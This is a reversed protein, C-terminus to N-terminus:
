VTQYQQAEAMESFSDWSTLDELEADTLAQKFTILQKTNGYFPASGTESSLNLQSLGVPTSITNSDILVEFGNLWMSVGNTSYKVAVKKSLTIDNTTYIQFSQNVSSSDIAYYIANSNTRYGVKVFDSSSGDSLTIVRFTLDDALAAIEAFLVGESDNFDASTGAGNCTEAARTVTSGSTPIYSTAYSAAKEVQCGWAYVSENTGTFSPLWSSTANQTIVLYVGNLNETNNFVVICRYWGNGYDEISSSGVASGYTGTTGNELDFNAYQQVDSASAVQIFNSDGAKAFVSVTDDVVTSTIGQAVYHNTTSTSVVIKDANQTGDPSITSNNITTVNSKAWSTSFDESRLLSNTRSPELLLSPTDQVVGDILPYDLRPTGTPAVAILGDEDVYTATSARTFDFDGNGNSPKVSFLGGSKVGSPLLMVGMKDVLGKNKMVGFNYGSPTPFYTGTNDIVRSRFNNVYSEGFSLDKMLTKSNVGLYEAASDKDIKTLTGSSSVTLIDGEGYPTGTLDLDSSPMTGGVTLDGVIHVNGATFYHDTISGNGYTATNSGNGTANQGIVIENTSTTSGGQTQYGVYINGDGSTKNYGAGYGLAVNRDGDVDSQLATNGIATNYSGSSNTGLTNYGMVSNFSGTSNNDLAQSGIATNYAGENLYLARWGVATNSDSTLNNALASEGVATNKLGTTNDRLAASGLASNSTGTTNYRLASDGIAVNNSGENEVLSYFGVATNNNGATANAMAKRGVATSNSGTTNLKLADSGVATNGGGTTNNSLAEYGVAVLYTSAINNTLANYGLATNFTGTTNTTLANAGVATNYSAANNKLALHGIATNQSQATQVQLTQYGIATNAGGTTNSNLAERGIAINVGGTTNSALASSGIAINYNASTNAYLAQYGIAVNHGGIENNYLASNGVATNYLGTTNLGLSLAGYATNNGGTTNSSLSAYGSATNYGGSTNAGLTNYGVATNSQGDINNALSIYGVAVNNSGTTNDKLATAGLATNGQGTTNNFLAQYGVAVGWAGSTNYRLSNIGLASNGTGTTNALLSAYGVGTNGIGTGGVASFGVATNQTVDGAGKGITLGNVEVDSSFSASATGISLVTANGLGDTINKESAGVVDNDATKLLGDYTDKIKTNTLTAM